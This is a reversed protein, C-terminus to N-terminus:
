SASHVGCPESPTTSAQTCCIRAANAGEILGCDFCQYDCVNSCIIMCVCGCDGPKPKATLASAISFLLVFSTTLNLILNKM